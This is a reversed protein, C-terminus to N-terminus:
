ALFLRPEDYTASLAAVLYMSLKPSNRNKSRVLRSCAYTKMNQVLKNGLRGVAAETIVEVGEFTRFHRM